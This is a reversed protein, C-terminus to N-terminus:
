ASRKPSFGDSVKARLEARRLLGSRRSQDADTKRGSFNHRRAEIEAV